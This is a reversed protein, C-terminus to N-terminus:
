QGGKQVFGAVFEAANTELVADIDDLVDDIQADLEAKRAGLQPSLPVPPAEDPDRHDRRQQHREQGAM